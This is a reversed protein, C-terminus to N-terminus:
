VKNVFVLGKYYCFKLILTIGHVVLILVVYPFKLTTKLFLFAVYELSRFVFSSFIFVIFQGLFGKNSEFIVSRCLYFNLFIAALLGAAYATNVQIGLIEHLIVTIFLNIGFGIVGLLGFGALQVVSNKWKKKASIDNHYVYINRNTAKYNGRCEDLQNKKIKQM